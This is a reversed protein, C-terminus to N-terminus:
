GSVIKSPDNQSDSVAARFEKLANMDIQFHDRDNESSSCSLMYVCALLLVLAFMAVARKRGQIKIPSMM